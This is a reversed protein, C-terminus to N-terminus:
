EKIYVIEFRINCIHHELIIKFSFNNVAFNYIEGLVVVKINVEEGNSM